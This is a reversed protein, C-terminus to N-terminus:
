SRSVVRNVSKNWLVNLGLFGFPILLLLDAVHALTEIRSIRSVPFALGGLSILVGVWVPILRNRILNIGLVILSLPFLPGAWYLTLNFALPHSASQTLVTQHSLGFTTAFLGRMGFNSGSICGYIMVLLGLSAYRPSTEQFLRFLGMFAPIWFVTALVLLTSGTPDYEGGTWFFSSISLCLPALLLSFGWITQETSTSTNM